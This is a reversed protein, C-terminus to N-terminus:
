GHTERGEQGHEPRGQGQYQSQRQAAAQAEQHHGPGLPVGLVGAPILQPAVPPDEEPASSSVGLPVRPVPSPAVLVELWAYNWIVFVGVLWVLLDEPSHTPYM